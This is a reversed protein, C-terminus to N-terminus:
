LHQWLVIPQHLSFVRLCCIYRDDKTHLTWVTRCTILLWKIKMWRNKSAFLRELEKLKYSQWDTLWYSITFVNENQVLEIGWDTFNYNTQYSQSKWDFNLVQCFHRTLILLDQWVHQWSRKIKVPIWDLRENSFTKVPWSLFNVILLTVEERM